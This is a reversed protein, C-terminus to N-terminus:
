VIFVIRAKIIVPLHDVDIVGFGIGRLKDVFQGLFVVKIFETDGEQPILDGFLLARDARAENVVTVKGRRSPEDVARAGQVLSHVCEKLDFSLQPQLLLQM